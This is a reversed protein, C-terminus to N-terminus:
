QPEDEEPAKVGDTPCGMPFSAVQTHLWRAFHCVTAYTRVITAQSVTAANQLPRDELPTDGARPGPAQHLGRDSVRVVAAPM